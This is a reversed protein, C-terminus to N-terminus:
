RTHRTQKKQYQLIKNMKYLVSCQQCVKAVMVNVITDNGHSDGPLYDVSFHLVKLLPLFSLFQSSSPSSIPLTPGECHKPCILVLSLLRNYFEDSM